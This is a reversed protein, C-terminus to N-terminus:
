MGRFAGFSRLGYANYNHLGSTLVASLLTDHFCSQGTDGDAGSPTNAHGPKTYTTCRPTFATCAIWYIVIDGLYFLYVYIVYAFM